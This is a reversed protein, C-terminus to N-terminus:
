TRQIHLRHGEKQANEKGLCCEWWSRETPQAIRYSQLHHDRMMEETTAVFIRKPNAEEKTAVEIHTPSFVIVVRGLRVGEEISDTLRVLEPSDVKAILKYSDRALRALNKLSLSTISDHPTIVTTINIQSKQKLRGCVLPASFGIVNIRLRPFDRELLLGLPIATAAGLSHGYIDIEDFSELHLRSTIIKKVHVASNYVGFHTISSLITDAPIGLLDTFLDSICRSGEVVICGRRPAHETELVFFGPKCVENSPDAVLLKGFTRMSEVGVYAAECMCYARYLKKMEAHGLVRRNQNPKLHDHNSNMTHAIGRLMYPTITAMQLLSGAIDRVEHYVSADGEIRHHIEKLTKLPNIVGETLHIDKITM